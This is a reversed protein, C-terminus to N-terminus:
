TEFQKALSQQYVFTLTMGISIKEKFSRKVRLQHEIEQLRFKMTQLHNQRLIKVM